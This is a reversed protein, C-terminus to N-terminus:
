DSTVNVSNESIHLYTLSPRTTEGGAIATTDTLAEDYHINGKNAVDYLNGVVAGFIDDNNDISIDVGAQDGRGPGYIVGTYDVNDPDNSGGQLEADRDPNMYIWFQSADDGDNTITTNKGLSLDKDLYVNVRGDGIVEIHVNDAPAFEGEVYMDITGGEPKLYVTQGSGPEFSELYYGGATLNCPNCTRTSETNLTEITNPHTTNDNDSTLVSEKEDILGDVAVTEPVDAGKSITGEVHEGENAEDFNGDVYEIDGTITQKSGQFTIQGEAILSGRLDVKNKLEINGATYIAGREGNSSEYDGVSSNYSDFDGKNKYTITTGTGGSIVGADVTQEETEVTLAVTATNNAHDYDVSGSTREHFYNGWARYFESQVSVTVLGSDVPNVDDGVPYAKQTDNNTIAASDGLYNEGDVTVVPLTLTADRYHFEPPSIMVANGDGDSRWVGGGQYAIETGGGEYYVKGLDKQLITDTGSRTRHTITMQGATENLRYDGDGATGFEVVQRQSQGLAVLSAQSDLQTMAKEASQANLQDQTDTIALGGVVLM